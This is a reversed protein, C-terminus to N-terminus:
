VCDAAFAAAQEHHMSIINTKGRCYISDLLYTIMGGAVEFVHNIEHARLFDAIYDSVKM